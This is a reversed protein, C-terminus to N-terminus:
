EANEKERLETAQKVAEQAAKADKITAENEANQKERLETAEAMAKTLAAQEAALKEIEAGMTEIEGALEAIEAALKDSESTKKERKLKNAKLQADCWAKHDAEAAAEEKLRALLKEIMEIVKAFPNDLIQTALSALASSSLTAARKKLYSAVRQKASVRMSASRMQLLSTAKGGVQALNVHTKYSEAVTPSSIIEIAKSLAEIEGKRVKQNAEYQATKIELTAITDALTKETEALDAKADALKGKAEGSEAALKGKTASKEERDAKSHDITDGLHLMVLNYNHAQNSETTEVDDLEAKFKDLLKELMDIIHDSQFEYAAVAPAGPTQRATTAKEQILAALVRRMGPVTASMKQLLMEAQANSKPRSELVQIARTLADVSEAYDQQVKVYEAHEKERIATAEKQDAELQAIEAELEAIADALVSIDNDAKEIFAILEEIDSNLTKINFGLERKQDDAWEAYDAFIKQEAEMEKVAKTKMETLMEIVKMVPM